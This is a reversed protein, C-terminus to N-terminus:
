VFAVGLAPGMGSNRVVLELMNRNSISPRLIALVSPVSMRRSASAQLDLLKRNLRAYYITAVALVVTAVALIWTALTMEFGNTFFLSV